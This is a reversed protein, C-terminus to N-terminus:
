DLMMAVAQPMNGGSKRRDNGNRSGRRALARKLEDNWGRRTGLGTLPESYLIDSQSKIVENATILQMNAIGLESELTKVRTRKENLERSLKGVHQSIDLLTAIMQPNFSDARIQRFGNRRLFERAENVGFEAQDKRDSEDGPDAIIPINSDSGM